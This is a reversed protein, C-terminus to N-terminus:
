EWQQSMWRMSHTWFAGSQQTGCALWPNDMVEEQILTEDRSPVPPLKTQNGLSDMCRGSTEQQGPQDWVWGAALCPICVIGVHQTKSVSELDWVCM